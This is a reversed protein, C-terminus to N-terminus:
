LCSTGQLSWVRQQVRNRRGGWLRKLVCVRGPGRVTQCATSCSPLVPPSRGWDKQAGTEGGVCHPGQLCYGGQLLYLSWMFLPSGPLRASLGRSRSAAKQRESAAALHLRGQTLVSGPFALWLADMVGAAIPLLTSLTIGAPGILDLEPLKAAM